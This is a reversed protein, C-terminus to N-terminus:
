VPRTESECMITDHYCACVSLTSFLTVLVVADNRERKKKYKNIQYRKSDIAMDTHDRKQKAYLIEIPRVDSAHQM